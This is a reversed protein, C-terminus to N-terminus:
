PGEKRERTIDGAVHEGGTDHEKPVPPSSTTVVAKAPPAHSPQTLPQPMPTTCMGARDQASASRGNERPNHRGAM